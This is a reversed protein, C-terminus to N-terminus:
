VHFTGQKLSKLFLLGVDANEETQDTGMAPQSTSPTRVVMIHIDSWMELYEKVIEFMDWHHSEREAVDMATQDQNDKTNPELARWTLLLEYMDRSTERTNASIHLPTHGNESQANIDSGNRLLLAAVETKAWRCASHLPTWQDCTRANPDAGAELLVGVTELHGGYSARHLPTYLDGDRVTVLESDEALMKKVLGNQGHQAARLFLESKPLQRMATEDEFLALEEEDPGGLDPLVAMSSFVDQDLEEAGPNRLKHELVDEMTVGDLEEM